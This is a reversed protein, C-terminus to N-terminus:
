HGVAVGLYLYSDRYQIALGSPYDVSGTWCSADDRVCYRGVCSVSSM